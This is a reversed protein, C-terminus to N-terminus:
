KLCTSHNSLIICGAKKRACPREEKPTEGEPLVSDDHVM